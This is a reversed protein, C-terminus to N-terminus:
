SGAGWSPTGVRADEDATRDQASSRSCPDRSLAAHYLLCGGREARLRMHPRFVRVNGEPKVVGVDELLARGSQVTGGALAEIGLATALCVRGSRPGRPRRDLGVDLQVRQRVRNIRGYPAHLTAIPNRRLM